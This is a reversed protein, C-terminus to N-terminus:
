HVIWNGTNVVTTGDFDMLKRPAYRSFTLRIWTLSGENRHFFLAEVTVAKAGVRVRPTPDVKRLAQLHPSAPPLEAQAWRSLAEKTCILYTEQSSHWYLYFQDAMTTMIILQLFSAPTEDLRIDDSWLPLIGVRRDLVRKTVAAEYEAYTGYPSADQRRVYLIPHGALERSAQYVWDLTYGKPLSLNPFQQLLVSVNFETGKKRGNSAMLHEPLPADRVAALTVRLNDVIAQHLAPDAIRPTACGATFALALSM